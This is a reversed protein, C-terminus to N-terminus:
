IGGIIHHQQCLNNCSGAACVVNAIHTMDPEGRTRRLAFFVNCICSPCPFLWTLTLLNSFRKLDYFQLSLAWFPIILILLLRRQGWDKKFLWKSAFIAKLWQINLGIEWMDYFQWCGVGNENMNSKIKSRSFKFDKQLPEFDKDHSILSPLMVQSLVASYNSSDQQPKNKQPTTTKVSHDLEKSLSLLM